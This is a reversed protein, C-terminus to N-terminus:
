FLPIIDFVKIDLPLKQGATKVALAFRQDPSPQDLQFYWDAPNDNLKEAMTISITQSSGVECFSFSFNGLGLSIGEGRAKMYAEKLTWYDFFRSRQKAEPLAFLERVEQESFFRDAITLVDNKRATHEVDVGVKMTSSVACIVYRSSHTLNFEISIPKNLLEPKGHEGQTFRWDSPHIDAAYRSLVTRVLARTIAHEICSKEFKYRQNREREGDTMLELYSAILSPPVQQIDTRWLHVENNNLSLETTKKAMKDLM